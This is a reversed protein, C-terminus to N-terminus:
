MCISRSVCRVDKRTEEEGSNGPPGSPESAGQVQRPESPELPLLPVDALMSNDLARKEREICELVQRPLTEGEKWELASTCALKLEDIGPQYAKDVVCNMDRQVYFCEGQNHANGWEDIFDATALFWVTDGSTVGCSRVVRVLNYNRMYLNTEFSKPDGVM